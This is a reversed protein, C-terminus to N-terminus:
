LRDLALPPEGVPGRHAWASIPPPRQHEIAAGSEDIRSPPQAARVAQGPVPRPGQGHPGGGQGRESAHGTIENNDATMLREWIGGAFHDDAVPAKGQGGGGGARGLSHGSRVRRSGRLGAERLLPCILGTQQGTKEGEERLRQREEFSVKKRRHCGATACKIQLKVMVAGTPPHSAEGYPQVMRGALFRHPPGPRPRVTLNGPTPKYSTEGFCWTLGHFRHPVEWHWM